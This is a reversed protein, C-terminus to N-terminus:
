WLNLKFSGINANPSTYACHEKIKLTEKIQLRFSSSDKALIKPNSFSINHDTLFSHKFLASNENTRHEKLRTELRRNTMGIYFDQCDDCNIQYILQSQKILPLKCKLKGIKNNATFVMNVKVLPAINAFINTLQRRLSISQKGKYPLSLYVDKLKPGFNVDKVKTSYKSKLFKHICSNLFNLPYGNASLEDFLYM